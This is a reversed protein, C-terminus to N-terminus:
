DDGADEEKVKEDAVKEEAAVDVVDEKDEEVEPESKAAKAKKKPTAKVKKTPTAEEGDGNEEAQAKKGRKKASSKPTKASGQLITLYTLNM